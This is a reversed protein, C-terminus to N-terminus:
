YQKQPGIGPRLPGFVQSEQSEVLAYYKGGSVCFRAHTPPTKPEAYEPLAAEVLEEQHEPCLGELVSDSESRTCQPLVEGMELRRGMDDAVLEEYAPAATPLFIIPLNTNGGTTRLIRVNGPAGELNFRAIAFPSDYSTPGPSDLLTITTSGASSATEHVQVTTIGESEPYAAFFAAEGSEFFIEPVPGEEMQTMWAYLFAYSARDSDGSYVYFSVEGVPYGSDTGEALQVFAPAEQVEQEAPSSDSNSGSGCGYLVAAGLVLGILKKMDWKGKM